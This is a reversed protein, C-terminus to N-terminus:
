RETHPDTKSGSASLSSTIVQAPVISWAPRRGHLDRPGSTPEIWM